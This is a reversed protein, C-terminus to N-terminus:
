AKNFITPKVVARRKQAAPSLEACTEAWFLPLCSTAWSNLLDPHPAKNLKNQASICTSFLRLLHLLPPPPLLLRLPSTSLSCSACGPSLPELGSTQQFFRPFVVLSDEERSTLWSAHNLLPEFASLGINPRKWLHLCNYDDWTIQFVGTVLVCLVWSIQRGINKFHM